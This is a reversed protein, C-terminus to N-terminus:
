SKPDSQSSSLLLALSITSVYVPQGSCVIAVGEDRLGALAEGLRISSEASGDGPLSVQVIPFSEETHKPFMVKAPVWAGHDLGRSPVGEVVNGGARLKDKVLSVLWPASTHPFTQTYYHPPFGYFDYILPSTSAENVITHISISLLTPHSSSGLPLPTPCIRSLLVLPFLQKSLVSPSHQPNEWHASVVVLAKPSYSLISQGTQTWARYGTSTTDFL